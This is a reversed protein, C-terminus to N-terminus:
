DRLSSVELPCSMMTGVEDARISDTYYSYLGQKVLPALESDDPDVYYTWEHFPLGFFTLSKM